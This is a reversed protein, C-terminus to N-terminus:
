SQGLTFVLSLPTPFSLCIALPLYKPLMKVIWILIYATNLQKYWIYWDLILMWLFIKSFCFVRLFLHDDPLHWLLKSQLIYQFPSKRKRKQLFFCLLYFFFFINKMSLKKLLSFLASFLFAFVPVCQMMQLLFVLKSCSRRSLKRIKVDYSSVFGNLCHLFSQLVHNIAEALTQGQMYLQHYSEEKTETHYHFDVIRKLSWRMGYRLLVFFHVVTM